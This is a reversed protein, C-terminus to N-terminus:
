LLYYVLVETYRRSQVVPICCCGVARVATSGWKSVEKKLHIQIGEVRSGCGVWKKAVDSGGAAWKNDWARSCADAGRMLAAVTTTPPPHLLWVSALSLAAFSLRALGAM